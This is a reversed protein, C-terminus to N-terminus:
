RPADELLELLEDRGIVNAIKLMMEAAMARGAEAARNLQEQARREAETDGREVAEVLSQSASLKDEYNSVMQGFTKRLGEDSIAEVERGFSRAAERMARLDSRATRLWQNASVSGDLYSGIFSAAVENWERPYRGIDSVIASDAESIEGAAGIAAAARREQVREPRSSERSAFLLVAVLVVGCVMLIKGQTWRAPNAFDYAPGIEGTSTADRAMRAEPIAKERRRRLAARITAPVASWIALQMAIIAFVEFWDRSSNITGPLIWAAAVLGTWIFPDTYWPRDFMGWIGRQSNNM